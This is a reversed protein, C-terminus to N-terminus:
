HTLPNHEELHADEAVDDSPMRIEGTGLIILFIGILLHLVHDAGNMGIGLVLGIGRAGILLAGVVALALYVFGMIRLTRPLHRAYELAVVILIAGSILHILNHQLDTYFIGFSGIIVNPVLTILAALILIIGATISLKKIM